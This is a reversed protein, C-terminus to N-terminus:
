YSGAWSWDNGSGVKFRVDVIKGLNTKEPTKWILKEENTLNKGDKMNLVIFQGNDTGIGAHRHWYREADIATVNGPCTYYPKIGDKPSNRQYLYLEKDKSILVYDSAEEYPLTYIVSNSNIYPALNIEYRKCASLYVESKNWERNIIFDQTWYKGDKDRLIMFFGVNNGSEANYPDPSYYGLHILENDGLNDLPVWGEPAPGYADSPKGPMVLPKNLNESSNNVTQDLIIVLRNNEFDHLTAFGCSKFKSLHIHAHLEEGDLTVPTQLYSSSHFLQDTPKVRSFIKGDYNEILDVRRMSMTNVPKFDTPLVNNAFAKDITIEKQFTFGDLDVMGQGGQQVIMINGVLNSNQTNCFHEHLKIPISGLESNNQQKYVDETVIHAWVEEGTIANEETAEKVFTLYSKQDKDGLVIWGQADFESYVDYTKHQLYTVGTNLDTIRLVLNGRAVTDTLWYFDKKNWEPRTKGCFTWKYALNETEVGSSFTLEPKIEMVEGTTLNDFNPFEGIEINNIDHYSYNGKDDYCHTFVLVMIILSFINYKM